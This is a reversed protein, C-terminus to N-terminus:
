GCRATSRRGTCTGINGADTGMVVEVGADVLRRLDKMAVEPAAAGRNRWRRSWVNPLKDAPIENLDDM